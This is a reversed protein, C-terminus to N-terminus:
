VCYAGLAYLSTMYKLFRECLGFEVVHLFTEFTCPSRDASLVVAVRNVPRLLTVAYSIGGDCLVKFDVPLVPFARCGTDFAVGPLVIARVKAPESVNGESVAVNRFINIVPTEDEDIAALVGKINDAVVRQSKGDATVVLYEYKQM